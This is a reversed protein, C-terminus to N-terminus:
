LLKLGVSQSPWHKSDARKGREKPKPVIEHTDGVVAATADDGFNSSADAPLQAHFM